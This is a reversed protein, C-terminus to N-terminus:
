LTAKKNIYKNVLSEVNTEKEQLFIQYHFMDLKELFHAAAWQENENTGAMLLNGTKQIKEIVKVFENKGEPTIKLLKARKDNPDPYEEVLQHQVLRKIVDMGSPVETANTHILTTKGMHPVYMLTALFSFDDIGSLKSSKFNDKLYHRSYKNIRFLLFSIYAKSNGFNKMLSVADFGDSDNLPEKEVKSTTAIVWRAFDEVGEGVGEKEFAELLPVIKKLISFKKDM